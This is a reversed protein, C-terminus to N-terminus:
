EAFYDRLQASIAKHDLAFIESGTDFYFSTTGRYDYSSGNKLSNYSNWGSDVWVGRGDVVAYNWEHHEGRKLEAFCRDTNIAEGIINVCYIGQAECLASTFTAYGGCIGGHTKLMYELTVTRPDNRDYGAHDYYINDAVWDSIARLKGYESTIGACINDSLEKVQRLIDDAGKESGSETIYRATQAFTLSVPNEAIDSNGRVIDSVDPFEIRGGTMKLRINHTSEADDAYINFYGSKKPVSFSATLFGDQETYTPTKSFCINKIDGDPRLKVAVTNGEFSFGCENGAGLNVSYFYDKEEPVSETDSFPSSGSPTTTGGTSTDATDSNSNSDATSDPNPSSQRSEFSFVIDSSENDRSPEERMPFATCGALTLAAATGAFFALTHKREM